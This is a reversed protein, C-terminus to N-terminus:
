KEKVVDALAPLRPVLASIDAGRAPAPTREAARLRASRARPNAAVEEADPMVPRRTLLRFSPAQAPMQPVHRSGARTRSREALFTKAIREELSHFAIVVLRGGPKLVREAAVLARALEGLEDNVFIRLAQFTRTAPSIEGPKARVVSEVIQALARTTRIPERSRAGAIRRAVARAYREEGLTAIIATLDRESAHAVVDAASPGSRGMRMDLPGELRFSFGRGAEDLQMSSVGVDLLIGDVAGHGFQLAVDDLASFNEEVLTLRGGSSQVLDAGLAIAHRDRDIGIVRTDAAALIMRSHGGAGFTADIYVGGDHVDLFAIAARGLVPIHRALGGAVAPSSDRGATM